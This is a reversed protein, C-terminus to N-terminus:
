DFLDFVDDLDLVDDAFRRLWSPKRRLKKSGDRGAKRRRVCEHRGGHAEPLEAPRPVPAKTKRPAIRADHRPEIQELKRIPAGCGHCVLRGAGTRPLLSRSECYCCIVVRDGPGSKRPM